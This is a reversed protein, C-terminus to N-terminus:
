VVPINISINMNLVKNSESAMHIYLSGQGRITHLERASCNIADRGYPELYNNGNSILIEFDRQRCFLSFFAKRFNYAVQKANYNDKGCSRFKFTIPLM